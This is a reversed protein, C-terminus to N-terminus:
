AREVWHRNAGKEQILRELLQCAADRSLGTQVLVKQLENNITMVRWLEPCVIGLAEEFQPRVVTDLVYSTAGFLEPGTLGLDFCLLAEIGDVMRERARAWTIESDEM